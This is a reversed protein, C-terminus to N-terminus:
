RENAPRHARSPDPDAQAAPRVAEDILKSLRAGREVSEDYVFRLEPVTRTKLAQALRRRLFGCARTLAEISELAAQEGALATVFVKAHSLDRSVEVDTVTVLEVRPDKVELRILEALDRRIQEALRTARSVDQTM